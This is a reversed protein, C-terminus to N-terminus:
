GARVLGLTAATTNSAGDMAAILKEAVVGVTLERMCRHEHRCQSLKRLYCPSCGLPVRAVSDPRNYPGTRAPNTPGVICVLPRDFAAAFHAAASDLCVVASLESIVAAFERVGTMGALNGPMQRCAAAIRECTATDERGGLLVCRAPTRDHISDILAAFSSEPWVKTNWRAAPVVGVLPPPAVAASAGPASRAPRTAAAHLSRAARAREEVSVHLDFTIPHGGFGLAHAFRWNRDVAHVNRGTANIHHTYTLPAGERAARFGVRVPAGCLMALAASRALGQLDIALDYRQRRISDVFRAFDMLASGSQLIRGYAKRDFMRVSSLDPHGAILPAFQTAVLWDIQASPYRARLGHLLPLTHVIDGLSSPKILLIRRFERRALEDRTHM